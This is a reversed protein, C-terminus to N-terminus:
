CAGCEDGPADGDQAGRDRNLQSKMRSNPRTSMRAALYEANRCFRSIDPSKM